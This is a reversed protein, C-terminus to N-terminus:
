KNKFFARLARVPSTALRGLRYSTSRTLADNKKKLSKNEAKLSKNEAALGRKEAMLAAVKAKTERKDQNVADLKIRRASLLAALVMELPERRMLARYADNLLPGLDLTAEEVDPGKLAALGGDRLAQYVTHLGDASQMRMLQWFGARVAMKYFLTQVRASRGAVERGVAGLAELFATPHRDRRDVLGGLNGERYFYYSKPLLRICAARLLSCAVFAVDNSVPLPQFSLGEALLFERRYLKNWPALGFGTFVDFGETEATVTEGLALYAKPIPVDLVKRRGQADLSRRAAIVVDAGKEGEAVMEALMDPRCFDDADVFLVWDGSAAALGNNRAVAAGQNPQALVKIRPDHAAFADLVARSGDTSGDDACIIEINGLTQAALSILMQPLYPAANYVPIVVSAAIGGGRVVTETVNFIERWRAIGEDIPVQAWHQYADPACPNFPANNSSDM